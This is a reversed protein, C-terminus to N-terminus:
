FCLVPKQWISETTHESFPSLATVFTASSSLSSDETSIAIGKSDVEKNSVSGFCVSWVSQLDEKYM